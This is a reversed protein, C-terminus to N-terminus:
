RRYASLWAGVTSSLLPQGNLALDSLAHKSFSGDAGLTYRSVGSLVSVGFRASLGRASPTLPARWRVTLADPGAEYECELRGARLGAVDLLPSANLRAVSAFLGLYAERGRALELGLDSVLVIAESFGTASPARSFAAPAETRLLEV